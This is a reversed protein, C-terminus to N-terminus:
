EVGVIKNWDEESLILKTNITLLLPRKTVLVSQLSSDDVEISDVFRPISNLSISSGISKFRNVHDYMSEFYIDDDFMKDHLLIDKSNQLLIFGRGIEPQYVEVPIITPKSTVDAFIVLSVALIGVIIFLIRRDTM